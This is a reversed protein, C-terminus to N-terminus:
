KLYLSYAKKSLEIIKKGENIFSTDSKENKNKNLEDKLKEIQIKYANSKELWKEKIINESLYEDLLKDSMKELRNIESILHSYREKTYLNHEKYCDELITNLYDALKEDIIIGKLAEKIQKDIIEEKVYINKNSCKGYNGTCHYYIFKEQKIESTIARGCKACKLMGSYLFKHNQRTNPKNDKKFAQKVKAFLSKNIIAPHKGIYLEGNYRLMGTYCENKLISELQGTGIKPNSPSYIYGEDYLRTRLTKLSINGKSYLEYARKVFKAKNEDIVTTKPDLKKYGYPVQGIFYGEEIKKRRGKQTEEKLNDIFRTAILVHIGHLFKDDTTSKDNLLNGERVLHINYKENNIKVYDSINRYLRDTKEVLINKVDTNKELFKLMANFQTRGEKKASEAEKYEQVIEFNNKKAYNRLLDLQAPISYGEKEQNKSSVRAYIVAKAM